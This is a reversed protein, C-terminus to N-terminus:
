EVIEFSQVRYRTESSRNAAPILIGRVRVTMGDRLISFDGDGELLVSGGHPDVQEVPAYRLHWQKRFQQVRGVLTRYEENSNAPVVQAKAPIIKEVEDSGKLQQIANPSEAKAAPLESTEKITAPEVGTEDLRLPSAEIVLPVIEVQNKPNTPADRGSMPLFKPASPLRDPLVSPMTGGGGNSRLVPTISPRYYPNAIGTAWRPRADSEERWNRFFGCGSLCGIMVFAASITFVYRHM